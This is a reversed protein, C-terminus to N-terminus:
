ISMLAVLRRSLLFDTGIFSNVYGHHLVSRIMVAFTMHSMDAHPLVPSLEHDRAIIKSTTYPKQSNSYRGRTCHCTSTALYMYELVFVWPDIVTAPLVSLLNSSHRGLFRWPQDTVHINIYTQLLRRFALPACSYLLRSGSNKRFGM